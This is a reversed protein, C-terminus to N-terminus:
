LSAEPEAVVTWTLADVVAKESAMKEASAATVNLTAVVDTKSAKTDISAQLTEGLTAVAKQSAVKTDLASASDGITTAIDTKAVKEEVKTDLAARIAEVAAETALTNADKTTLTEVGVKKGSLQMAGDTTATLLEDAHEGAVKDAKGSVDVFLGNAKTTLANGVDKSVTVDVSIENSGSVTVNATQSAKGTYIDVLDGAPIEVTGGTHLTLIIKKSENDYRGDTVFNEKPLNIVVAEGGQVSLTLNGSEGDFKAGTVFGEIAVKKSTGGQATLTLEKTAKNYAVDKYLEALKATFEGTVFSHVAKGSVPTAGQAEITNAIPHIITKWGGDTGTYVKGELTTNHIYVKGLAGTAPFDAVFKVSDSFSVTGRYIEGTDQLFYLTNNDKTKLAAYAKATTIAWKVLNAAAM